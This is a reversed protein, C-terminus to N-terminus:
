GMGELNLTMHAATDIVMVNGQQVAPQILDCIMEAEGIVAHQTPALARIAEVLQCSQVQVVRYAICPGSEWCQHTSM